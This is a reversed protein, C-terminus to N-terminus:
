GAAGPVYGVVALARSRDKVVDWEEIMARGSSPKILGTLIRITTTKGAGNPGLYGVSMGREVAISLGDLAKYRGGYSKCLSQTQIAAM